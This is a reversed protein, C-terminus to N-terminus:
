MIIHILVGNAVQGTCFLHDTYFCVASELRKMWVWVLIKLLYSWKLHFKMAKAVWELLFCLYLAIVLYKKGENMHLTPTLFARFGCLMQM